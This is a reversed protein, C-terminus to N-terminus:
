RTRIDMRQVPLPALVPLPQKVPLPPVVVPQPLAPASGPKIAGSGSITASVVSGGPIFPAAVGAASAGGQTGPVTSGAKKHSRASSKAIPKNAPTTGKATSKDGAQVNPYPIPVPGGPGPTKTVDIPTLLISGDTKKHAAIQGAAAQALMALVAALLTVTTRM